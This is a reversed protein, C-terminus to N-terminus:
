FRDVERRKVSRKKEMGRSWIEGICRCEVEMVDVGGGDFQARWEFGEAV